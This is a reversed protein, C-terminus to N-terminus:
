APLDKCLAVKIGKELLRAIYKEVSHYPVGAMALDGATGCDRHTLTIELAVAAAEADEGYFEYFDGVRFAFLMGPNNAKVALYRRFHETM